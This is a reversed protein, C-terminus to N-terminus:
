GNSLHLVELLEEVLTLTMKGYTYVTWVTVLSCLEHRNLLGVRDFTDKVQEALVVETMLSMEGELIDDETTKIIIGTVSVSEDLKERTEVALDVKDAEM